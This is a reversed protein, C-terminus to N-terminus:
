KKEKIKEFNTMEAQYNLSMKSKNKQDIDCGGAGCCGRNLLPLFTFWAGLLLAPYDFRYIGMTLVLLGAFLRMTRGANWGYRITQTLKKVNYM